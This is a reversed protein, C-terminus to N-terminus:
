RSHRGGHKAAPRGTDKGSYKNFISDKKQVYVKTGIEGSKSEFKLLKDGEYMLNGWENEVAHGRYNKDIVFSKQEGNKFGFTLTMRIVGRHVNGQDDTIEAMEKETKLLVAPKYSRGKSLKTRILIGGVVLLSIVGVMICFAVIPNM